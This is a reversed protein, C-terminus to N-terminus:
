GTLLVKAHQALAAPVHEDWYDWVYRGSTRGQEGLSIGILDSDRGRQAAETELEATERRQAATPETVNSWDIDAFFGAEDPRTRVGVDIRYREPATRPYVQAVIGLELMVTRKEEVTLEDVREMEARAWLLMRTIRDAEGARSDIRRNLVGVQLKLGDRETALEDLRPRLEAVDAEDLLELNRQLRRRREEVSALQSELGALAERESQEQEQSHFRDHLKTPDLVISRVLTWIPEALWEYKISPSPKGCPIRESNQKTCSLYKHGRKRTAVRLARGCVGCRAVGRLLAYEPNRPAPGKQQRSNLVTQAREWDARGVIAPVTGDPLKHGHDLDIKVQGHRNGEKPEQRVRVMGWAEGAYYGNRVINRITQHGWRGSGKYTEMHAYPSPYGDDNLGRAIAKMSRGELVEAYVRRVIVAEDENVEYATKTRKGRDNVTYVWSYGFSPKPSSGLIKGGRVKERRGRGTAEKRRERDIEYAFALKNRIMQGVASQEFTGEQVSWIRVGAVDFESYLIATGTQSRSMRGQDNCLFVDFRRLKTWERVRDMGPRDLTYGSATDRIEEVVEWGHQEALARCHDRQSDHSTRDPDDQARTSVRTYILVRTKAPETM